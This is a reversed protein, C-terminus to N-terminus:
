SPRDKGEARAKVEYFLQTFRTQIAQRFLDFNPYDRADIPRDVCYHAQTKGWNSTWNFENLVGDHGHSIFIQVLLGRTYAYHM